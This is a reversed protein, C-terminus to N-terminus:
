DDLGDEQLLARMRQKGRHYHRRASGISVGMAEAAEAITLGEYFVLHLVERQRAALSRLAEILRRSRETREAVLAPDAPADGQLAIAAEERRPHERRRRRRREEQSVRRIVGFIWTRLSSRGDFRAAGSVVRAYATQLV